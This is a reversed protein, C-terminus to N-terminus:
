ASDAQAAAQLCASIFSLVLRASLLRCSGSDLDSVRVCHHSQRGFDHFSWTETRNQARRASHEVRETRKYCRKEHARCSKASLHDKALPQKQRSGFSVRGRRHVSTEARLVSGSPQHRPLSTAPKLMVYRTSDPLTATRRDSLLSRVRSYLKDMVAEIRSGLKLLSFRHRRKKQLTQLRQVRVFTDIQLIVGTKTM